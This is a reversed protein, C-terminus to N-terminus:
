VWLFQDSDDEDGYTDRRTGMVSSSATEYGGDILQCMAQLCDQYATHHKRKDVQKLEVGDRQQKYVYEGEFGELLKECEESIKLQNQRKLFNNVATWRAQPDNSMEDEVIFGYDEFIKFPGEGVDRKYAGSPDGTIIIDFGRYETNLHPIVMHKVFEHSMVGDASLEEIVHLGGEMFQGFLASGANGWDCSCFLKHARNAKIHDVVHLARNFEPHVLNGGSGQTYEGLVDRKIKNPDHRSAQIIDWWHKFGKPAFKVGEANPNKVFEAKFYNNPEEKDEIVLYPPQMRYLKREPAEHKPHFFEQTFSKHQPPNYALNIGSYTIPASIAPPYRGVRTPLKGMVVAINSMSDPEDLNITTYTTGLLTKEWETNDLPLFDMRVKMFTGNPFIDGIRKGSVDIAGPLYDEEEPNWGGLKYPVKKGGIVAYEPFHQNADGVPYKKITGTAPTSKRMKMVEPNIWEEFDSMVGRLLDAHTGRVFAHRTERIGNINPHQNRSVLMSKMVMCTTKASNVHAMCGCYTHSFDTFYHELTPVGAVSYPKNLLPPYKVGDIIM